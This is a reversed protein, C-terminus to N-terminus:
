RTKMMTQGCDHEDIAMKRELRGGGKAPGRPAKKPVVFVEM